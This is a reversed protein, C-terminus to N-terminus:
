SGADEGQATVAQVEDIKKLYKEADKLKDEDQIACVLKLREFRTRALGYDGNEFAEKGGECLAECSRRAAKEAWEHDPFVTKFKEFREHAEDWKGSRYSCEALQYTAMAAYESSTYDDIVLQFYIEAARYDGLRSYVVASTYYKKALRERARALYMRADAVAESEPHDIIFDEFQRIAEELDTQDLGYNSPTGEFYCVAKMLQATVAFDSAPYNVLLRNFEVGALAYDENGFYSLALYYQATDVLAEGPYNFIVAQFAQIAGVYKGREYLDMGRDYLDDAPFQGLDPPGGCGWATVLLAVVVLLVATREISSIM